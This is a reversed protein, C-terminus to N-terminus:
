FVCCIEWVTYDNFIHVFTVRATKISTLIQNRVNLSPFPIHIRFHSCTASSFQMILHKMLKVGDQIHYFHDCLPPPFPCTSLSYFLTCSRLLFGRLSSIWKFYRLAISKIAKRQRLSPVRARFIIVSCQLSDNTEM